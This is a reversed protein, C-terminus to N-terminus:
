RAADKMSDIQTLDQDDLFNPDEHLLRALEQIHNLKSSRPIVSMEKQLAWSLVVEATSRNHKIALDWVIPSTLVPNHATNRHQTGLTSYSVFEIGHEACIRRLEYAPEIPDAFAQIADPLRPHPVEQGADRRTQVFSIIDLLEDPRINSLGIRKASHDLGVVAEMAVWSDRLALLPPHDDCRPHWGKWCAPAHIYYVDLPFRAVAGDELIIDDCFGVLETRSQAASERISAPDTLSWPPIKTSVRLDQLMCMNEGGGGNNCVGNDNGNNDALCSGDSDAAFFDRLALGVQKQDYWYDAEATDFRRFGEQLAMTVVNYGTPGLAATGFGVGISSSNTFLM